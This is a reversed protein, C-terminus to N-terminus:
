KNKLKIALSIKITQGKLYERSNQNNFFSILGSNIPFLTRNLSYNLNVILLPSLIYSIGAGIHLILNGRVYGEISTVTVSDNSFINEVLIKKSYFSNFVGGAFGYPIIKKNKLIHFNFFVPIQISKFKYIRNISKIYINPGYEPKLYEKKVIINYDSFLLGSHISIRETFYGGELGFTNSSKSSFNEFSNLKIINTSFSPAFYFSSISDSVSAKASLFILNFILLTSFKLM